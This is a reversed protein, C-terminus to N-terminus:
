PPSVGTAHPPEHTDARGSREAGARAREPQQARLGFCVRLVNVRRVALEYLALSLAIAAVVIITYKLGPPLSTRVVFYAILTALPLHLIYFPYVAQSAYRLVPGDRYLWRHGAGLAALVWAWQSTRFLWLVALEDTTGPAPHRPFYLVSVVTVTLALAVSVPLYRDVAAQFRPQSITVYGFTFILFFYLPDKDDLGLLDAQRVLTLPVVFLYITIPWRLAWDVARQASGRRLLLLLPVGLLSFLFLFLVFWLHSPTFHGDMGTLDTPEDLFFRQYMAEVTPAGPRGLGAANVMVPFIVVLSFLFPLLLRKGREVVYQGGSRKALAYWSVGGAILFLTELRWRSFFLDKAQILLDLQTTDKVYAVIVPDQNFINAGHVPVLLLVALVRLWDLDPRRTTRAQRAGVRDGDTSGRVAVHSSTM